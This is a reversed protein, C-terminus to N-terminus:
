TRYEANIKVYEYSFDCTWVIEKANGRGLNVRLLIEEQNMIVQGSEETYTAARMGQEVICVDDLYISLKSLDMDSIGSRGIAALIRGWNPDSAFFATKVLPSNAITYAVRLCEEKNHGENVEITIFKTAGEGDRIIAQALEICVGTIASEFIVRSDQNSNVECQSKGTAVFVCADNTSTDGDVSIRNFSKEVVNSLIQELTNQDVKIDTTIFALLTAMDPRIMGSGKTIGTITVTHGDIMVQRSVAKAITDTTMMARAVNLWNDAALGSFLEPIKKRLRDVPLYEGIVGTSFPLVSSIPCDATESLSQCIRIADEYGRKGMGANANGANIICFRPSTEKIHQRAVLVPAACFLNKTFVAACTSGEDISLLAFDFQDSDYLGASCAALSIGAVPLLGEPEKLGVAM